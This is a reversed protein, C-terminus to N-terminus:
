TTICRIRSGLRMGQIAIEVGEEAEGAYTRDAHDRKATRSGHVVRIEDDFQPFM